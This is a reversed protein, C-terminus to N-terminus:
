ELRVENLWPIALPDVRFNKVRKRLAYVSKPHSIFVAPVEQLIIAQVKKYIIRQLEPALTQQAHELLSDVRSNKYHFFNHASQSHFLPYLFNDPHRTSCTWGDWFLQSTNGRLIIEQYARWDHYPVVEVHMDVKELYSKFAQAFPNARLTDTQIFYSLKFAAGDTSGELLNKAKQPDYQLQTLTSDFEKVFPPLPGRAVEAFGRHISFVMAKADLAQAVARRVNVDAFPYTECNFGLFTTSFIAKTKVEIDPTRYLRDISSASLGSAVDLNGKELEQIKAELSPIIKFIVHDLQPTKGWYRSFKRIVIKQDPQWTVFEFPGTGIPRTGLDGGSKKLAQPSVIAAFNPAALNDLFASYPYKLIFQVTFDDICRIERIMGFAFHGYIDTVNRRFYPCKEEFQREFSIKVAEANLPNGDHFIVGRRLSFTWKLGASDSQWSTALVPVLKETEWDVAILTEFLNFAIQYYIVDTAVAPDLSDPSQSIGFVLRNDQISCGAVSMAILLLPSFSKM